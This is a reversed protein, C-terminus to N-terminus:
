SYSNKQERLSGGQCCYSYLNCSHKKYFEVRKEREQITPNPVEQSMFKKDETSFFTWIYKLAQKITSKKQKTVDKSIQYNWNCEVLLPILQDINNTTDTILVSRKNANEGLITNVNSITTGDNAEENGILQMPQIIDDDALLVQHDNLL